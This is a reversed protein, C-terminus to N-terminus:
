WSLCLDLIDGPRKYSGACGGKEGPVRGFYFHRQVLLPSICCISAVPTSLPLAHTGSKSEWCRLISLHCAFLQDFLFNCSLLHKIPPSLDTSVTPVTYDGPPLPPSTDFFSLPPFLSPLSLLVANMLCYLAQSPWLCHPKEKTEWIVHPWLTRSCPAPGHKTQLPAVEANIPSTM